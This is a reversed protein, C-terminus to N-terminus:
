CTLLECKKAAYPSNLSQQLFSPLTPIQEEVEASICLWEWGRSVMQAFDDQQEMQEMSLAQGDEGKCGAEVARLYAVTHSTSVSCWREHGTPQCLMGSSLDALKQNSEVVKKKRDVNTPLEFAISQQLKSFSWGISSIANGKSHVDFGNLMQGSRNDVHCLIQRPQLVQKYALKQDLLLKLVKDARQNIPLSVNEMLKKVDDMATSAFPAKCFLVHAENGHLTKKKQYHKIVQKWTKNEPM